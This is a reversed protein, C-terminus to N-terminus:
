YIEIKIELPKLELTTRKDKWVLSATQNEPTANALVKAFTARLPTSRIGPPHPSTATTTPNNDFNDFM